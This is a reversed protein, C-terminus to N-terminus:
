AEYAFVDDLAVILVDSGIRVKQARSYYVIMGAELPAEWGPAFVVDILVGRMLGDGDVYSHKVILGTPTQEEDLPSEVM